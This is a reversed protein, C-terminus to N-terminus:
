FFQEILDVGGFQTLGVGHAAVRQNRPGRRMTGSGVEFSTVYRLRLNGDELSEALIEPNRKTMM